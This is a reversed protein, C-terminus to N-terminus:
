AIFANMESQAFGINDILDFQRPGGAYFLDEGVDFCVLDERNEFILLKMEVGWGNQAMGAASSRSARRGLAAQKSPGSRSTSFLRKPPLGGSL